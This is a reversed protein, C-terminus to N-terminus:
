QTSGWRVVCMCIPLVSVLPRTVASFLRCFPLSLASDFRLSSCHTFSLPLCFIHCAKGSLCASQVTCRLLPLICSAYLNPGIHSLSIHSIHVASHSFISVGSQIVACRCSHDIVPLAADLRIASHRVFFRVTPHPSSHMLRASVSRIRISRVFSRISLITLAFRIIFPSSHIPM